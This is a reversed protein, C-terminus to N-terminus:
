LSQWSVRGHSIETENPSLARMFCRSKSKTAAASREQAVGPEAGVDPSAITRRFGFGYYHRPGALNGTYFVLILVDTRVIRTCLRDRLSQGDIIGPFFLVHDCKLRGIALLVCQVEVDLLEEPV